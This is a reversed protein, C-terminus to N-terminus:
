ADLAGIQRLLDHSDTDAYIARIKGDEIRYISTYTARIPRGTAPIGMLPGRHTATYVWRVAVLDGEALMHQIEFRCDPFATRFDRYWRRYSEIGGPPFGGPFDATVDPHILTETLSEDWNNYHEYGYKRILAKNREIDHKITEM